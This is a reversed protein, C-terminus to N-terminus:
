SHSKVTIGGKGKLGYYTNVQKFFVIKETYRQLLFSSKFTSKLRMKNSRSVLGEDVKNNGQLDFITIVILFCKFTYLLSPPSM